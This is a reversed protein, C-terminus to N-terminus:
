SSMTTLSHHTLPPEGFWSHFSHERKGVDIGRVRFVEYAFGRVVEPCRIAVEATLSSYSSTDALGKIFIPGPLEISTHTSTFHVLSNRLEKLELFAKVHESDFDIGKGLIRKPWTRLKKELSIRENLDKVLKYEHEQFAPESVIVRFYLNFFIEVVTIAMIVTLSTEQPEHREITEAARAAQRRLSAYYEWIMHQPSSLTVDKM